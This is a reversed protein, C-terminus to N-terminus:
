KFSKSSYSLYSSYMLYAFCTGQHTLNALSNFYTLSTLCTLHSICTLYTLHALCILHTLYALCTGPDQPIITLQNRLQHLGIKSIDIGDILISGGAFILLSISSLPFIIKFSRSFSLCLCLYVSLYLALRVSLCLSLFLCLSQFLTM